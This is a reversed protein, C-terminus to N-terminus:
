RREKIAKGPKCSASATVAVGTVTRKGYEVVRGGEEMRLWDPKGFNPLLWGDWWAATGPM